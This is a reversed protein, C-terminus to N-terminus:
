ITKTLATELRSVTNANTYSLQIRHAVFARSKQTGSWPEKSKPNLFNTTFVFTSDAM